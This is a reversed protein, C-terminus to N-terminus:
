DHTVCKNNECTCTVNERRPADRYSTGEAQAKKQVKTIYESTNCGGTFWIYKCDENLTCCNEEKNCIQELAKPQVTPQQQTIQRNECGTLFLVTLFLFSLTITKKM